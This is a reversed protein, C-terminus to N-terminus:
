SWFGYVIYKYDDVGDNYAIYFIVQYRKGDTSESTTNKNKRRRKKYNNDLFCAHPSNTMPKVWPMKIVALKGNTGVFPKFTPCAWVRLLM